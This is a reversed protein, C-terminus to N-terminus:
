IRSDNVENSLSSHHAGHVVKSNEVWLQNMLENNIKRGVESFGVIRIELLNVCPLHMEM